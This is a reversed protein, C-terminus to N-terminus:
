GAETCIPKATLAVELEAVIQATKADTLILRAIKRHGHMITTHDRNAFRRGIEPLSRLTLTRALYMAIQRPFAIVATRRHALLEVRTTGFYKAVVRIIDDISPNRDTPPIYIWDRLVEIPATEIVVVPIPIPKTEPEPEPEVIVIPKIKPCLRAQRAKHAEHLDSLMSM